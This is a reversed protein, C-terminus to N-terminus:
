EIKGGVQERQWRLLKDKKNLRFQLQSGGGPFFSNLTSPTPKASYHVREALGLERRIPNIYTNEVPGPDTDSNPKDGIEQYLKHAIEHFVTIGISFAAIAEKDSARFQKFDKFDISVNFVTPGVRKGTSDQTITGADVRAFAVDKSDVSVLNFLKETSNV